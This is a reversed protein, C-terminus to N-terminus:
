SRTRSGRPWTTRRRRIAARSASRSPPFSERERGSDPDLVPVRVTDVSTGNVITEIIEGTDGGKLVEPMGTKALRSKLNDEALVVDTLSSVYQDAYSKEQRGRQPLEGSIEAQSFGILAMSVYKDPLGIALALALAAIPLVIYVLLGRRRKLAAIYDSVDTTAAQSEM